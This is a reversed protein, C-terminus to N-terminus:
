FCPSAGGHGRHHAGATRRRVGDAGAGPSSGPQLAPVPAYSRSILELPRPGAEAGAEPEPRTLAEGSDQGIHYGTEYGAQTCLLAESLALADLLCGPRDECDPAMVNEAMTYLKKIVPVAQALPRIQEVARRLRFDDGILNVGAVAAAGLREHLEYLGQLEM